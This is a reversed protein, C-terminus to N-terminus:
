HLIATSEPNQWHLCFPMLSSRWKTSYKRCDTPSIYTIHHNHFIEATTDNILPRLTVTRRYGMNLRHVFAVADIFLATIFKTALPDAKKFFLCRWRLSTLGLVANEGLAVDYQAFFVETDLSRLSENHQNKRKSFTTGHLNCTRDSTGFLHLFSELNVNLYRYWWLQEIITLCIGDADTLSITPREGREGWSKYLGFFSM